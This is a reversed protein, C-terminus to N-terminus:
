LHELDGLLRDGELRRDAFLLVAVETVEDLVLLDDGRHLGDDAEAQSLLGVLHQVRERRALLLHEAEAEAEGVAALVGELLDALVEGDGALADALDLGFGEPLEAVGRPRLFEPAKELGSIIAVPGM